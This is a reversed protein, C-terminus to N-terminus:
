SHFRARLRRLLRLPCLSRGVKNEFTQVQAFVFVGTDHVVPEPMCLSRALTWTVLKLTWPVVAALPRILSLMLMTMEQSPCSSGGPSGIRNGGVYHFRLFGRPLNEGHVCMSGRSSSLSGLGDMDAVMQAFPPLATM